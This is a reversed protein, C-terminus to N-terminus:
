DAILIHLVELKQLGFFLKAQLTYLESVCEKFRKLTM